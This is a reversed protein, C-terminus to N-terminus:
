DRLDEPVEIEFKFFTNNDIPVFTTKPRMRDEQVIEEYTNEWGLYNVVFFGGKIMKILARWWGCADQENARSYVEV